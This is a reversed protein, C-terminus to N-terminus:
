FAELQCKNIKIGMAECANSIRMKPVGALVAIEWADVCSIKGDAIKKGIADGFERAAEQDAKVKKNEPHHGFLGLQCKALRINLVDATKGVEGPSVDLSEVIRFAVACPLKGEKLNGKIEGSVDERPKMGTITKKNKGM